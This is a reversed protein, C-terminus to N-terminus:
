AGAPTSTDTVGAVKKTTTTQPLFANELGTGVSNRAGAATNYLSTYDATLGATPVTTGTYLGAGQALGSQRMNQGSQWGQDYATAAGTSTGLDNQQKMANIYNDDYGQARLTQEMNKWRSDAGSMYGARQQGAFYQPDYNEATAVVQDATASKKTAQTLNFNNAQTQLNKVNDIYSNLSGLDPGKPGIAAGIAQAGLQIGARALNDPNTLTDGIKSATNMATSKVADGTTYQPVAGNPDTQALDSISNGVYPQSAAGVGSTNLGAVPAGTAGGVGADLTSAGTSGGLSGGLTQGGAGGSDIFSGINSYGGTAGLGAEPAAGAVMGGPVASISSAGSGGVGTGIGSAGQIGAGEVATPVAETVGAPAVNAM